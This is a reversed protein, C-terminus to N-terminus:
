YLHKMQVIMFITAATYEKRTYNLDGLLMFSLSRQVPNNVSNKVSKLLFNQAADFNNRELEITAAAYYIIDQYNFYKDRKAM